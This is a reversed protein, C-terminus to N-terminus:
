HFFGNRRFNEGQTDAYSHILPGLTKNEEIKQIEIYCCSQKIPKLMPPFFVGERGPYSNKSYNQHIKIM